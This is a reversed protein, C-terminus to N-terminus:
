QSLCLRRVPGPPYAELRDHFVPKWGTPRVAFGVFREAGGNGVWGVVLRRRM